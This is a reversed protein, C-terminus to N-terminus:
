VPNRWRAPRDDRPPDPEALFSEIVGAADGPQDLLFLHGAGPLVYFHCDPILRCFIRANVAPAMPDEEGALILTPMPLTKLWRLSTWGAITGMQARYGADTPPQALRNREYIALVAPDRGSRGRLLRATKTRRKSEDRTRSLRVLQAPRAPHQVGGLGPLTGALILRRVRGPHDRAFQQALAGGWSHGLVDVRSYGLRDLLGAVLNAVGRMRTRRGLPPTAGAGPADFAILTRGALEELLPQWTEINGGIGAMLLLPPGSGTVAYRVPIGGVDVADITEKPSARGEPAHDETSM